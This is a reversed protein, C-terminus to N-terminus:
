SADQQSNKLCLIALLAGIIMTLAGSWFPFEWRLDYLQGALLPGSVRGLSAAMSNLGMLAGQRNGGQRSMLANLTPGLLALNLTFLATAPLLFIFAPSLAILIFSAAGGVLGAKILVPEGLRRTLPGTLLGQGLILVDGIVVWLLGSEQTSINFKDVAFLGIIGQFNALAFAIILILMLILGAPKFTLGLFALHLSFPQKEQSQIISRDEPLFRLVLLSSLGALGAGIFFPTSLDQSSLLGGLLPGAVVGIGTAAGLQGMAASREFASTHDGIYAMSAPTTASSLIGSLVRAAFLMWFRDALGMWAMAAAYGLLGLAIVPKRGFRDSLLGWLPAFILQMLAYASVMWGLEQGGAGFKEIYFPVVPFVMGYGLMVVLLTLSLIRVPRPSPKM